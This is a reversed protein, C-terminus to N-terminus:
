VSCETRPQMRTVHSQMPIHTDTIPSLADLLHKKTNFWCNNGIFVPDCYGSDTLCWGMRKVKYLIYRPFGTIRASPGFLM